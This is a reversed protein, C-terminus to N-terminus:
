VALRALIAETMADTGVVTAGAYAVDPTALGAALAGEVAREVAAALVEQGAVHRLIMAVSLIAGIPNAKGQGAIDPASGHIPEFLGPRGVDGLSASPLLGISGVLAAAEDSLIDGFTNETALVDFRAPHAVLEMAATDVLMHELVVDPYEGHVEEFVDRWLRSTALVNSKDVSTVKGRRGRAARFAVHALRAIEGASYVMSDRAVDGDRGKPEGFYLGGTLERVILLDFGAGFREPRLPSRAALAPLARVPRLNAFVGLAQRLALLGREPREEPPNRDWRPGGVAGLLVAQGREAMALTAPPLPQEGQDLAAGGIPARQLVLPIGGAGAVQELVRAAAETVEPGVGDGPLMTVTLTDPV